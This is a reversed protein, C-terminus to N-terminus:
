AREHGTPHPRWRGSRLVGNCSYRIQSPPRKTSPQIVPNPVIRGTPLPRKRSAFKWQGSNPSLDSSLFTAERGMASMAVAGFGGNMCFWNRRIPCRCLQRRRGRGLPWSSVSSTETFRGGSRRFCETVQRRTLERLETLAEQPVSKVQAGPAVESASTSAARSRRQLDRM